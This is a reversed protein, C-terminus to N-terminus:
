KRKFTSIVSLVQWYIVFSLGFALNGGSNGSFTQKSRLEPGLFWHNPYLGLL